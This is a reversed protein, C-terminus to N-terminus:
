WILQPKTIMLLAIAFFIALVGLRGCLARWNGAFASIEQDSATGTLLERYGVEWLDVFKRNVFMLGAVLALSLLLWPTLLPWGGLVILGIGAVIGAGVPISSFRSALLALNAPARWGRRALVLLVERGALMIAAASMATVHVVLVPEYAILADM